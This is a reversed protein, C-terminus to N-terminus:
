DNSRYIFDSGGYRLVMMRRSLEAIKFTMTNIKLYNCEPISWEGYITDNDKIKILTGDSCFEYQELTVNFEQNISHDIYSYITWNHKTLLNM